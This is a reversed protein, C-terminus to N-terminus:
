VNVGAAPCHAAVAVISIVTAVCIVGANAATPGSHWFLVAGENGKVEVFLMVPVQLGATILVAETPVEVYVNVGATPCHAVAVEVSSIVTVAGTVGVKAENPDSHWFLMAGTREPTEVFLIEPIHLGATILVAM